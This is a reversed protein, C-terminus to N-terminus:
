SRGRILALWSKYRGAQTSGTERSLLGAIKITGIDMTDTIGIGTTTIGRGMVTIGTVGTRGMIVAITTARTIRTDRIGTTTRITGTTPLPITIDGEMFCRSRFRCVMSVHVGAKAGPEFLFALAFVAFLLVCLKKM